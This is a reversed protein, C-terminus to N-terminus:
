RTSRNCPSLCSRARVVRALLLNKAVGLIVVLFAFAFAFAVAFAFARRRL